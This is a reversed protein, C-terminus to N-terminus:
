PNFETKMKVFFSDLIKTFMKITDHDPILIEYRYFDPVSM